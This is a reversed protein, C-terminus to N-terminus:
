RKRQTRSQQQQQQQMNTLGTAEIPTGQLMANSMQDRFALAIERALNYRQLAIPLLDTIARAYYYFAVDPIHNAIPAPLRCIDTDNTLITFPPNIGTAIPMPVYAGYIWLQGPQATVTPAPRLICLGNHFVFEFPYANEEQVLKHQPLIRATPIPAPYEDIPTPARRQQDANELLVEPRIYIAPRLSVRVTDRHWMLHFPAILGVPQFDVVLTTLGNATTRTQRPYGGTTSALPYNTLTALAYSYYALEQYARNIYRNLETNSVTRFVSEYRIITQLENRLEALSIM